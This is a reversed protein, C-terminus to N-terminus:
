KLYSLARNVSISVSGVRNFYNQKCIYYCALIKDVVPLNVYLTM